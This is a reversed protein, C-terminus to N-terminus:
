NGSTPNGTREREGALQQYLAEMDRAPEEWGLRSKLETRGSLFREHLGPELLIREIASEIARADHAVVLGAVDALLPAIGCRDTIVVPVGMTAAEGATNGFNENQSPLVFVDSDRYAAWKDDGFLPGCFQVMGAIGFEAAMQKLSKTM